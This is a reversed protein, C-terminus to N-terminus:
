GKKLRELMKISSEKALAVIEAGGPVKHNEMLLRGNCIVTDIVSNDASYVCNSILNYCPIMRENNLDLLLADAAKGVAIKGSNLGFCEAGWKTAMKFVTTAPLLEVDKYRSKAVLAAVKMEERMDLNNNSSCGDTGLIYRCGAEQAKQFHFVGSCLKMNSVPNHVLTVDREALIELEEEDVHIVHAAVVQSELAGIHKLWRVPTMGHAKVCDEVEQKTESLHIHFVLNHEAAYAACRRLLDEGVTYIAHPAVTLTIGEPLTEPSLHADLYHFNENIKKKGLGDMFTVGIAAKLGMEEVARITEDPQWYMDNFFITGSRIMEYLALRSGNYIDEANMVKEMPWIYNNLWEFLPIDDAYGRLLTMPSHTHGNYFPPIIAKDTGDIVKDALSVDLGPEIRYFIKNKIFVDTTEGNHFVNKILLSGM